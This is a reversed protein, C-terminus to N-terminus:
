ALFPLLVYGCLKDRVILCTPWAWWRGCPAKCLFMHCTDAKM